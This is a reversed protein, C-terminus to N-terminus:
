RSECGALLLRLDAAVAPAENRLQRWTIRTSRWGEALLVRDRHRDSEFARKTGHVAHGDLEVILRQARWMCDVELLRGRIPLTANFTPRPLGNADLFALFREEFENRTIARRQTSALLERLTASGRRRPYRELLDPLSLNDWLRQVEVEQLARELQRRKLTGALDFITRPVSTVPIGNVTRVEDAPLAAQHARV